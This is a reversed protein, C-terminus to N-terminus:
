TEMPSQCEVRVSASAPSSSSAVRNKPRFRSHPRCPSSPQRRISIRRALNGHAVKWQKRVKPVAAHQDDAATFDGLALHSQQALRACANEHDRARERGPEVPLGGVGGPDDGVEGGVIGIFLEVAYDERDGGGVIALQVRADRRGRPRPVEEGVDDVVRLQRAEDHRRDDIARRHHDRYRAAARRRDERPQDALAQLRRDVLRDPRKRLQERSPARADAGSERIERRAAPEIRLDDASAHRLQKPRPPADCGFALELSRHCGLGSRRRAGDHQDTGPRAIRPEQRQVRQTGQLVGIHDEVISEHRVLDKRKRAAVRRPDGDALGGARM